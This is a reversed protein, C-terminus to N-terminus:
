SSKVFKSQGIDFIYRQDDSWGSGGNSISFSIIKKNDDYNLDGRFSKGFRTFAFLNLLASKMSEVRRKHLAKCWMDWPSGVEDSRLFGDVYKEIDSEFQKETAKEIYDKDIEINGGRITIDAFIQLPFLLICVMLFKKFM